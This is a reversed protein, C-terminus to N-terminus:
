SKKKRHQLKTLSFMLPSSRSQNILFTCHVTSFSTTRVSRELGHKAPLSLGFKSFIFLIRRLKATCLGTMPYASKFDPSLSWDQQGHKHASYDFLNQSQIGGVLYVCPIDSISAGIRASTRLSASTKQHKVPSILLVMKTVDGFSSSMSFFKTLIQNHPFLTLHFPRHPFSKM